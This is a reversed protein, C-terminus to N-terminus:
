RIYKGSFAIEISFISESERNLEPHFGNEVILWENKDYNTKM